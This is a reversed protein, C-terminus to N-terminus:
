LIKIGRNELSVKKFEVKDPNQEAKSNHLMHKAGGPLEGGKPMPKM